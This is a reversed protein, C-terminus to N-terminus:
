ESKIGRQTYESPLIGFKEKFCKTFYSQTTYGVKFMVEKVTLKGQALYAAAKDMRVDRIFESVTKGTLQKIKRYIQKESWHSEEHLVSATFESDDIHASVIAMMERLFNEDPSEVDEAQPTTVKQRRIRELYQEHKILLKIIVGNLYNIDFPKAIFADAYEYSQIRTQADDKGTLVIIPLFATDLSNRITRSMTLGDMGPMAIDTVVLDIKESKLVDLGAEGEEATFLVYDRGLSAVLLDRIDPNDEVLLINPKRNHQWVQSLSYLSDTEEGTSNKLALADSKMTSLRITFCSGKGPTSTVSIHGKHQEVAQKVLDLGIGTGGLNINRASEGCFYRNFIKPLEDESIGCGTDEVKIDVYLMDASEEGRVVSMLINGGRSTFKLANSLLNDIASEMQVKDLLFMYDIRDSVFRYNIDKNLFTPVYRNWVEKAFDTISVPTPVFLTSSTGDANFEVMSHLLLNMKDANKQMAQLERTKIADSEDASMKSVSALIISLPSKFDHAVNALFKTKNDAATIARQREAHEMKLRHNMNLSYIGIFCLIIVALVYLLYALTSRYWPHAIDVSVGDWEGRDVDEKLGFEFDYRGSPVNIFAARNEDRELKRWTDDFGKLRYLIIDDSSGYSFSSLTLTFSNRDAPLSIGDALGACIVEDDTRLETIIVRHGSAPAPAQSGRSAELVGDVTGFLMRDDTHCVSMLPLGDTPFHIIERSAPCYSAIVNKGAIWVKGDCVDLSLIYDELGEIRELRNQADLRYLFRDTGIWIYDGDEKLTLIFDDSPMLIKQAAVEPWNGRSDPIGIIDLSNGYVIYARDDRILIRRVVDSRLAPSSDRSLHLDCAVNAGSQASLLRKKDVIFVGGDYTGLWLRHFRDEAITYMWNSSYRGTPETVRFNRVRRSAYDFCDLGGDSAIWLRHGDDFLGRVKNHSLKGHSSPSDAKINFGRDLAPCSCILGNRGALWLNGDSGFTMLGVDLGDTQGTIRNLGTFRYSQGTDTIAAGHDTGLWINGRHDRALAWVVNDPISSADTIDHRFIIQRKGDQLVAAGSDTGLWLDDDCYLFTKVPNDKLLHRSCTSTTTDYHLLGAETGIWLAEPERTDQCIDLVLVKRGSLSGSLDHRTWVGESGSWISNYSGAWLQNGVPRIVTFHGDLLKEQSGNDFLYLGTTTAAYVSDGEIHLSKVHKGPSGQVTRFSDTTPDYISIGSDTGIYLLGRSCTLTNILNNVLSLSDLGNCRYNIYDFGDYRFLGQDTGMWIYGTDDQTISFVSTVQGSPPVIGRFRGSPAAGNANLLLGTFLLVASFITRILRNM